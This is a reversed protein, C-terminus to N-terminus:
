LDHGRIGIVDCEVFAVRVDSAEFVLARAYLRDNGWVGDSPAERLDYGGLMVPGTPTIDVKAYGARLDQARSVVAAYFFLSVVCLLVFRGAGRVHEGPEITLCRM